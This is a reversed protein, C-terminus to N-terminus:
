IENVNFVELEFWDIEGSFVPECIKFLGNILGRESTKCIGVNATYTDKRTKADLCVKYGKIKSDFPLVCIYQVGSKKALAVRDGDKVMLNSVACAGLYVGSEHITILPELPHMGVWGTHGNSLREFIEFESISIKKKM